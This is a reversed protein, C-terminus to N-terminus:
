WWALFESPGIHWGETLTLLVHIRFSTHMSSDRLQHLKSAQSSEELVDYLKVMPKTAVEFKM